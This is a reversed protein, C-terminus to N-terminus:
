EPARPLRYHNILIMAYTGSLTRCSMEALNLKKAKSLKKIEVERKSAASHDDCVEQYAVKFPARGKTYKAGTGAEHAALRKDFDNTIGTYLTGDRCKLIYVIWSMIRKIMM